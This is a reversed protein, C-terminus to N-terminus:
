FHSSSFGLPLSLCSANRLKFNQPALSWGCPMFYCRRLLLWKWHTSKKQATCNGLVNWCAGDLTYQSSKRPSGVCLPVIITGRHTSIILCVFTMPVLPIAHLAYYPNHSSASLFLCSSIVGTSNALQRKQHCNTLQLTCPYWGVSIMWQFLHSTHDTAMMGNKNCSEQLM